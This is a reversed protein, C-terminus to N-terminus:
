FIVTLPCRSKLGAASFPRSKRMVLRASGIRPTIVPPTSSPPCPLTMPLGRSSTPATRRRVFASLQGRALEGVEDAENVLQKSQNWKDGQAEIGILTVRVGMDQAARVGERLDEDGSLLFADSIARERALTM